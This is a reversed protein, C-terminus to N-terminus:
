KCKFILQQGPKHIKKDKDVHNPGNSPQRWSEKTGSDKYRQNDYRKNYRYQTNRNWKKKSDLNSNIYHDNYRSKYNRDGERFEKRRNSLEDNTQYKVDGQDQKQIAIDKNEKHEIVDATNSLIIQKRYPRTYEQSKAFNPKRNRSNNQQPRKVTGNSSINSSSSTGAQNRPKFEAATPTLNSQSIDIYNSIHNTSSSIGGHNLPRASFTDPIPHNHVANQNNGYSESRNFCATDHLNTSYFRHHQNDNFQQEQNLYYNSPNWNAM